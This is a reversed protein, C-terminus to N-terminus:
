VTLRFRIMMWKLMGNKSRARINRNKNKKVSEVFSPSQNMTVQTFIVNQDNRSAKDFVMRCADFIAFFKLRYQNVKALGDINSMM